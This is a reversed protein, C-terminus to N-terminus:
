FLNKFFNGLKQWWNLKKPVTEANIQDGDTVQDVSSAQPGLGDNTEVTPQDAAPTPGTVSDDASTVENRIVVSVGAEERSGVPQHKINNDPVYVTGELRAVTAKLENIQQQQEKIANVLVATLQEYKVGEAQKNSNYHVLIPDIKEM